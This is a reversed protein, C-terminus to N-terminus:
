RGDGLNRQLDDDPQHDSYQPGITQTPRDEDLTQPADRGYQLGLDRCCEYARLRRFLGMPEDMGFTNMFAAVASAMCHRASCEVNNSRLGARFLKSIAYGEWITNQGSGYYAIGEPGLTLLLKHCKQLLLDYRKM